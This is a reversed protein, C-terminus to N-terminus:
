RIRRGSEYADALALCQDCRVTHWQKRRLAKRMDVGEVAIALAHYDARSRHFDARARWKAVVERRLKTDAEVLLERVISAHVCPLEEAYWGFEGYSRETKFIVPIGTMVTRRSEEVLAAEQEKTLTM